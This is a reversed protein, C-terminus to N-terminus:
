RSAALDRLETWTGHELLRRHLEEVISAYPETLDVALVDGAHPEADVSRRAAEIPQENERCLKAEILLGPQARSGTLRVKVTAGAKEAWGDLAEAPTQVIHGDRRGLCSDHIWHRRNSAPLWVCDLDVIRAGCAHCRTGTVTRVTRCGAQRLDRHLWSLRPSDSALGGLGSCSAWGLPLGFIERGRSAGFSQIGDSSSAVLTGGITSSLCVASAAM